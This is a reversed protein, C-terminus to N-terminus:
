CFRRCVRRGILFERYCKTYCLRGHWRYYSIRTLLSDASAARELAVGEVPTAAAGAVGGAICGAAIVIAAVSTRM